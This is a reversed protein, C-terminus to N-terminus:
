QFDSIYNQKKLFFNLKYITNHRFSMIMTVFFYNILKDTRAISHNIPHNM